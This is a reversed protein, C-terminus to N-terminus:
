DGEEDEDGDADEGKGSPAGTPPENDEGEVPPPAGPVSPDSRKREWDQAADDTQEGLKRSRQELEDAEDELNDALKGPDTDTM